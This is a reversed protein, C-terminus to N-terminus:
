RGWELPQEIELEDVKSIGEGPKNVIQVTSAQPGKDGEQAFYRVGTGIELRDFDGHLVSNKHFYIERGAITKIFGYGQEPFLQTVIGTMAQEPHEKVEGRQRENLEILQRRASEFANRIVTEVPAYQNGEDPNEIAAIEHGPPVTMDIRVRFPSGSEPRKHAKEIAIRCSSIHDCVQELKGVKERVLAELADTKEVDRYSVELPIQM